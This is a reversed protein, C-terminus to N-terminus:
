IKKYYYRIPQQLFKVDTVIIGNQPEKSLYNGMGRWDEPISYSNVGGIFLICIPIFLFSLYRAQKNLKELVLSRNTLYQANFVTSIVIITGIILAFLSRDSKKLGDLLNIM